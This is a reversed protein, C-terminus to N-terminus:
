GDTMTSGGRISHVTLSPDADALAHLAGLRARHAASRVPGAVYLLDHHGLGRLHEVLQSMGSAYDISVAAFHSAPSRRNLLVVPAIQDVREELARDVKRPSILM